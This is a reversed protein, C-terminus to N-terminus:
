KECITDPSNLMLADTLLAGFTRRTIRHNGPDRMLHPIVIFSVCATTRARKQAYGGKHATAPPSACRVRRRPADDHWTAGTKPRTSSDWRKSRPGCCRASCQPRLAVEM